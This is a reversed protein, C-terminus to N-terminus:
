DARLTISGNSTSARLSNGGSGLRGRAEDRKIEGSFAFAEAMRIRGGEFRVDANMGAPAVLTISGSTTEVAVESSLDLRARVDGSSADAVLLGKVIGLDASGSSMDVSAQGLIGAVEMDGSSTDGIFEGIDADDIELDGSSADFGLTQAIVTRVEYDGSSCDFVIRDAELRDAELDGSSTDVIIEDAIITGLTVDGSSMDAIFRDGRLEDVRLDGSSMDFSGSTEVPVRIVVTFSAQRNGWNWGSRREPDSRVILRRGQQVASYRKREFVEEVDRGRGYITVQAESGDTAEVIVDESSLDVVLSGGARVTFTEDLMVTGDQARAPLALALLAFALLAPPIFLRM